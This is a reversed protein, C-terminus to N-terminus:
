SSDQHNLVVEMRRMPFKLAASITRHWDGCQHRPLDLPLKQKIQMRVHVVFQQVKDPTSKSIM